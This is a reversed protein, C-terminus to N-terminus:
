QNSSFYAELWTNVGNKRLNATVEKLKQQRSDEDLSTPTFFHLNQEVWPVAPATLNKKARGLAQSVKNLARDGSFGMRKALEDRELAVPGYKLRLIQQQKDPLAQFAESLKAELEQRLAEMQQQYLQRDREEEDLEIQEDANPRYDAIAEELTENSGRYYSRIANACMELKAKLIESTMRPWAVDKARNYAVTMAEWDQRTPPNNGYHLRYCDLMKRINPYEAISVGAQELPAKIAYNEDNLLSWDNKSIIGFQKKLQASLENKLITQAYSSLNNNVAPTFKRLVKEFLSEKAAIDESNTEILFCLQFCDFVTIPTKQLTTRFSHAAWFAPEHLYAKLHASYLHLTQWSRHWYLVWFREQPNTLKDQHRIFHRQLHKDRLWPGQLSTDSTDLASINLYTTFKDLPFTRKPPTIM